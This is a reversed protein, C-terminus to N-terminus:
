TAKTIVNVEAIDRAAAYAPSCMGGDRQVCQLLSDMLPARDVATAQEM